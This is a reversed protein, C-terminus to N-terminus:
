EDFPVFGDNLRLAKHCCLTEIIFSVCIEVWLSLFSSM